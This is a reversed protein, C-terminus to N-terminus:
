RNFPLSVMVVFSKPVFPMRPVTLWSSVGSFAM